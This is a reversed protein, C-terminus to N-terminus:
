ITEVLATNSDILAAVKVKTDAPIPAAGKQLAGITITRGDLPVIVQGGGQSAPPITVYVTAIRGVADEKKLTGDVKLRQTARLIAAIVFMMLLGAALAILCALWVALGGSVSAGGAWGFALLFGIIPKISLLSGGADAADADVEVDDGIGFMSVVAMVIILFAAFIAIGYFIQKAFTLSSWWDTLLNGIIMPNNMTTNNTM